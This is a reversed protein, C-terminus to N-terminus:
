RTRALHSSVYYTPIYTHIRRSQVIHLGDGSLYCVTRVAVTFPRVPAAAISVYKSVCPRKCKEAQAGDCARRRRNFVHEGLYLTCLICYLPCLMGPTERSCSMNWCWTAAVPQQDQGRRGEERTTTSGPYIHRHWVHPIGSPPASLPEIHTKLWHFIKSVLKVTSWEDHKSVAGLVCMYVGQLLSRM